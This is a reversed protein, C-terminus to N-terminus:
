PCVKALFAVEDGDESHEHQWTDDELLFAASPRFGGTLLANGDDLGEIRTSWSLYHEPESIFNGLVASAAWEVHGQDDYVAVFQSEADFDNILGQITTQAPHSTDFTIRGQVVGTIAVGGGPMGTIDTARPHLSRPSSTAAAWVIGGGPDLVAVFIDEYKNNNWLIPEATAYLTAASDTAQITVGTEFWGTVASTGDPFGHIAHVGVKNWETPLSQPATENVSLAQLEALWAVGTEAGFSAVWTNTAQLPPDELQTEGPQGQGVTVPKMFAGATVVREGAFAALDNWEDADGGSAVAAVPVSDEDFLAAYLWMNAGEYQLTIENSGGPDLVLDWDHTRGTIAISGQQSVALGNLTGCRGCAHVAWLLDGSGDYRAIVLSGPPDVPQIVTEDPEGPELTISGSDVSGIAMVFGGDPTTEVRKEMFYGNVPRKAWVLAGDPDFRALFLSSNEGEGATLTTENPEAPGLTLSDNFYGAVVSSGDDFAAMDEIGAGDLTVVWCMPVYGVPGDLPTEDGTDTDSADDDNDPAGSGVEQMLWCGAALLSVAALLIPL